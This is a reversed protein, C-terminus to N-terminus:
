PVEISVSLGLDNLYSSSLIVYLFDSFSCAGCRGVKRGLAYICLVVQWMNQKEFLDVTQFLDTKAVGYKECATLFNTINEMQKFAMKMTNHKVKGPGMIRDALRHLCVGILLEVVSVSVM